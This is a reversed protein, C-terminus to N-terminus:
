VAYSIEAQRTPESIHILSLLEDGLPEGASGRGNVHRPALYRVPQAGVADWQDFAAGRPQLAAQHLDAWSPVVVNADTPDLSDLLTGAVREDQPVAGEPGEALAPVLTAPNAPTEGAM